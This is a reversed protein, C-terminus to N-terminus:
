IRDVGTQAISRVTTLNVGGSAELKVEPAKESRRRVAARLMELTMNDLLIIDPREILAADFQELNEVEIELPLKMGSAALHARARGIAEQIRLGCDAIRLAALHNDKILIGDYLGVRHNHGGGQRIAYKDLLRWGPTTKRTDLIVCPLGGIADVY